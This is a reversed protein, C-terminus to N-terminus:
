PCFANRIKGQTQISSPNGSKVDGVCGVNQISSTAAQPGNLWVSGVHQLRADAGTQVGCPIQCDPCRPAYMYVGLGIGLFGKGTVLMGSTKDDPQRDYNTEVQLFVLTGYDGEWFTCEQLSHETQLGLACVHSAEPTVWLNHKAPAVDNGIGGSLSNLHDARWLWVSELFAYSQHVMMLTELEPLTRSYEVTMNGHKIWVDQVVTRNTPSASADQELRLVCEAKPGPLSELLLSCIRPGAVTVVLAPNGQLTAQGLGMVVSTAGSVRLPATFQFIDPTFLLSGGADLVSQCVAADFDKRLVVFVTAADLGHWPAGKLSVPGLSPESLEPVVLGYGGADADFALFPKPCTPVRSLGDLQYDRRSMLFNSCANFPEGEATMGGKAQVDVGVSNWMNTKWAGDISCNVLLWQQNGGQLMDGELVSNSGFGGSAYCGSHQDQDYYFVSTDGTVRMNRFPSAQSVYWNLTQVQLNEVSRWFANLSGPEPCQGARVQITDFTAQTGEVGTRSLGLVSEYYGVWVVGEYAGAHVLVARRQTSFECDAEADCSQPWPSTPTVVSVNPCRELRQTNTEGSPRPSNSPPQPPMTAPTTFAPPQVPPSTWPKELLIWALAAAAAVLLFALVAKLGM